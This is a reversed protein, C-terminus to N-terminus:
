LEALQNGNFTFLLYGILVNYKKGFANLSCKSQRPKKVDKLVNKSEDENLSSEKNEIDTTSTDTDNLSHKSLDLM